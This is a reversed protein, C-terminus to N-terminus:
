YLFFFSSYWKILRTSNNNWVRLKWGLVTNYCSPVLKAFSVGRHVSEDVNTRGFPLFFFPSPPPLLSFLPLSFSFFSRLLSFDYPASELYDRVIKACIERRRDLFKKWKGRASQIVKWSRKDDRNGGGEFLYQPIQRSMVFEPILLIKKANQAAM